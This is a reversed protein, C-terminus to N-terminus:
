SVGSTRARRWLPHMGGPKVYYQYSLSEIDEALEIIADVNRRIEKRTESRRRFEQVVFWGIPPVLIALWWYNSNM